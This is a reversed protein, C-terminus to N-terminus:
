PTARPIALPARAAPEPAEPEAPLPETELDEAAEVPELDFQRGLFPVPRRDRILQFNM